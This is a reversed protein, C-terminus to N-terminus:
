PECGILCDGPTKCKCHNGCDCTKGHEACCHCPSEADMPVTFGVVIAVLVMIAGVVESKFRTM